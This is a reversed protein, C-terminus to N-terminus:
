PACPRGYKVCRVPGGVPDAGIPRGPRVLWPLVLCMFFLLFQLFRAWAGRPLRLQRQNTRAAGGNVSGALQLAERCEMGRAVNEVDADSPGARSSNARVSSNTRLRLRRCLMWQGHSM